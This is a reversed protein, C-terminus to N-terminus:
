LRRWEQVMRVFMEKLDVRAQWGLAELKETDLRIVMEPNYGFSALDEPLDFEVAIGSEPFAECVCQAMERITVATNKNTVNYASGPEGKALITLLAAVADGTYCYTRLTNGATHLVINRKEV